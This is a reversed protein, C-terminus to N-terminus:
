TADVPLAPYSWLADVGNVSGALQVALAVQAVPASLQLRYAIAEDPRFANRPGQLKLGDLSTGLVLAPPVGPDRGEAEALVGGLTASGFPAVPTVFPDATPSPSQAVAAVTSTLVLLLALLAAMLSRAPSRRTQIM